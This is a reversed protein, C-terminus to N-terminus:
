YKLFEDPSIDADRLISMLLGKGLDRGKHVPVSVTRQDHERFFIYHSGETRDHVFGAKKLVRILKRAPVVPLKPM